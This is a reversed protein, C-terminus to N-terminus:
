MEVCKESVYREVYREVDERRCVERRCVEGTRVEQKEKYHPLILLGIDVIHDNKKKVFWVSHSPRAQDTRYLRNLAEARRRATKLPKKSTPEDERDV